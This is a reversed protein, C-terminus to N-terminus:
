TITRPLELISNCITLGRLSAQCCIEPLTDTPYRLNFVFDNRLEINREYKEMHFLLDMYIWKKNNM